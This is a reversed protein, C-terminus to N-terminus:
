AALAKELENLVRLHQEFSLPGHSYYLNEEFTTGARRQFTFPVQHKPLALDIDFILTSTEFQAGPQQPYVTEALLKYLNEFHQLPKIPVEPRSVLETAYQKRKIMKPDYAIFSDKALLEMTRSLFSDSDDTSTSTQAIIGDNFITLNVGTLDANSGSPSFEGGTYQVGKVEDLETPEKFGYLFNLRPGILRYLNRGRPNLHRMELLWISKASLVTEVKM